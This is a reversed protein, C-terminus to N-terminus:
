NANNKNKWEQKNVYPVVIISRRRLVHSNTVRRHKTMGGAVRDSHLDLIICSAPHLIISDTCERRLCVPWASGRKTDLNPPEDYFRRGSARGAAAVHRQRRGVPDIDPSM